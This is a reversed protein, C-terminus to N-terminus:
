LLVKEAPSLITNVFSSPTALLVPIAKVLVTAFTFLKPTDATEAVVNSTDFVIVEEITLATSILPAVTLADCNFAALAVITLVTDAPNKTPSPEPKVFTGEASPPM